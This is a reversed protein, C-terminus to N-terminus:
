AKDNNTLQSLQLKLIKRDSSNPHLITNLKDYITLAKKYDNEDLANDFDSFLKNYTESYNGSDLHMIDDLIEEVSWGKFTVKPSKHINVSDETKTLVFLNLKELSQIVIPSHTTVIFQTAPFIESLYKVVNKQWNPHLHLDIEDLLVIAPEALPNSSNPYREFMKKCFDILWSLTTQYGYGLDVLNHWGANTKFLVSNKLDKSSDFKFDLIEPFIESKILDKLKNLHDIATSQNNKSAYDLQLLWDEINILSQEPYFLTQSNSNNVNEVLGKTGTRRTVGYGYIVLNSLIDLEGNHWMSNPVFGWNPHKTKKNPKPVREYVKFNGKLYSKSSSKKKYIIDCGVFRSENENEKGKLPRISEDNINRILNLPACYKTKELDNDTKFNLPRPELDAIAKLINTKGTNNNGLIVTWQILKNDGDLLKFENEGRFCKYNEFYFRSIYAIYNNTM